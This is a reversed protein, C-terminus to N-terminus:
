GLVKEKKAHKKNYTQATEVAEARSRFEGLIRHKPCRAVPGIAAYGYDNLFAFWKGNDM